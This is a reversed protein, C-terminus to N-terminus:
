LDIRTFVTWMEWWTTPRYSQLFQEDDEYLKFDPSNSRFNCTCTLSPDGFICSPCESQDLRFVPESQDLRFVPESQDLRFVPNLSVTKRKDVHDAMSVYINEMLKGSSNSNTLLNQNTQKKKKYSFMKCVKKLFKSINKFNNNTQSSKTKYRITQESDLILLCEFKRKQFIM